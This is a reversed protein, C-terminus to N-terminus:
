PFQSVSEHDPSISIRIESMLLYRVNVWLFIAEKTWRKSPIIKILMIMQDLVNIIM